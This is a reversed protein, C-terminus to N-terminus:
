LSVWLRLPAAEWAPWHYFVYVGHIFNAKRLVMTLSHPLQLMARCMMTPWPKLSQMEVYRGGHGRKGFCRESAGFAALSGLPRWMAAV